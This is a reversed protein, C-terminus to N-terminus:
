RPRRTIATERSQMTTRPSRGEQWLSLRTKNDAPAIRKLALLDRILYGDDLTVTQGPSVVEGEFRFARLVKFRGTM